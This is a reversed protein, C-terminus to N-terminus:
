VYMKLLESSRLVMEQSLSNIIKIEARDNEMNLQGLKMLKNRLHRVTGFNGDYIKINDGLVTKVSEKLFVFHTCGLVVSTVEEINVDAFCRRIAMEIKDGCVFGEEVLPVLDPCPVKEIPCASDLKEMLRSFKKERLTVETAMVAVRGNETGEVAPKLAPEMGIIPIDYKARLVQVAASTATNCAIVIAKVGQSVLYDSVQISLEILEETSKAGYPANASDGYYIYNETPMHRQLEGLVSIGGMGSDFVGIPATKEM